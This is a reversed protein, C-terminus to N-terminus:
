LTGRPGWVPLFTAGDVREAQRKWGALPGIKVAWVADNKYYLIPLYRRWWPPIRFEQLCKSISKRPRNPLQLEPVSFAPVVKLHLGAPLGRDPRDSLEWDYTGWPGDHPEGVVLHEPWAEASDPEIVRIVMGAWVRLCEGSWKLEPIRDPRADLAQRSFELLRRRDPAEDSALWQYIQTALRPADLGSDIALASEGVATRTHPLPAAVLQEHAMNQLNAARRITERYGPWREAVAPLIVQRIYNRDQKTELNTPDVVYSLGASQVAQKLEEGSIDLLPRFILGEGCARQRPIGALGRPGAGRFLRLLVTEVMDDAHHATFLVERAALVTEFVAYRARRADAELGQGSGVIDCTEVRLPVGLADCHKQCAAPWGAADPHLGHNVHIAQIPPGGQTDRLASLAHLLAVSDVGGSFAVWWTPASTVAEPLESILDRM